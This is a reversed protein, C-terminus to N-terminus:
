GNKEELYKYYNIKEEIAKCTSELRQLRDRVEKGHKELLERRQGITADGQRRLDAFLQMDRMSMGTVRLRKLFEIWAIDGTMYMRYGNTTRSVPGVLGIREYYRLTHVSLGTIKSAQNINVVKEM